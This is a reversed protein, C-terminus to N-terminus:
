NVTITVPASRSYNVEQRFRETLVIDDVSSQTVSIAVRAEALVEWEGVVLGAVGPTVLDPFQVSDTGGIADRDPVIMHWRRGESDTATMELFAIGAGNPVVNASVVDAVDISPSGTFAGGPVTITPIAPPGAGPIIAGSSPDLFVRTRSLRADTDEAETVLWSVPSFGALAALLPLSYNAAVDYVTGSQLTVAGIGTMAQHDFGNLSATVRAKPSDAILSDTQLGTALGFDESHVASLTGLTAVVPTLLINAATVGGPVAPAPPATPSVLGIGCVQCGQFGFTPTIVPEFPGGFATLIQARNPLIPTPPIESSSAVQSKSGVVSHDAFATSGVIVTSGPVIPASATPQSFATVRLVATDDVVPKLPLSVFAAQSDYLTVLDYEARVITVTHATGSGVDFTARGSADTTGILQSTAPVTPTSPDVLVTAGVIPELTAHDYAEVTLSGALAGRIVGRQRIQGPIAMASMNGALDTMTLTYDRAAALRGLTVPLLLFRGSDNSGFILAEPNVGDTLTAASIGESAEGYYALSESETFIDNGSGPPGARVLTPLTIDFVPDDNSDQHIYGTSQSGRQIQATFVLEGDDLMPATVTGLLTGFDLEISQSGQTGVVATREIFAVDFTQTTEADGGYIRGVVVDGAVSGDPVDVTLTVNLLNSQNIKNPFGALASGLEVLTPAAPAITTFRTFPTRGSFDLTGGQGFTINATVTFEYDQSPDLASDPSIRIVRPDAVGLTSLPTGITVDIATSGEPQIFIDASQLASVDNAPRDFVVLFDGERAQSSFNDRPYTAVISGDVIEEAQNVQFDSLVTEGDSVQFRLGDADRGEPFMVVEYIVGGQDPLGNIPRIVLLRGNGLFDYEAPLLQGTGQARVGIRADNATPSTPLITQENLSESFEVVIPVTSPWGSGKPYAARVLPRGSLTDGGVPVVQITPTGFEEGPDSPDVSPDFARGVNDCAVASLAVGILLLLYLPRNRLM